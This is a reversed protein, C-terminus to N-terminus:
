SVIPVLVEEVYIKMDVQSIKDVSDQLSHCLRLPELDLEGGEKLPTPNINISDIGHARLIKSDNFPVPIEPADPFLNLIRDRLKSETHTAGIFFTNGGRGSLELNLVWDINGYAGNNIKTSLYTSGIGGFEEGDVLAVNLHPCKLKLAIACIISASNDNANDSDPNVIDHHAMVMRDSSGPLIVNYGYIISGDFGKTKFRDINYELELEDLIGTIFQVRATPQDTNHFINGENKAGCLGIIKDYIDM